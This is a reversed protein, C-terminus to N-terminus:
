LVKSGSAVDGSDVGTSRQLLERRRGARRLLGVGLGIMGLPLLSLAVTSAVYIGRTKGDGPACAPCALAATALVM